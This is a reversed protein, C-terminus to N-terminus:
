PNSDERARWKPIFSRVGAAASEVCAAAVLTRLLETKTGLIRIESPDVVEVRQALARLHDRRYTGDENRLKHRAALAFRRLSDSTIAPGLREVASTAREADAQAQDRVATLKAIRDKLSPDAMDVVGNEIAEYLRRLKAEAEAARKRVEAIHGRRRENWEERRELLQDMMWGDFAWCFSFFQDSYAIEEEDPYLFEAANNTTFSENPFDRWLK